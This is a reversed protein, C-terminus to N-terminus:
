IIIKQYFCKMIVVIYQQLPYVCLFPLLIWSHYRRVKEPKVCLVISIKWTLFHFIKLHYHAILLIMGISARNFRNAKGGQKETGNKELKFAARVVKDKQVKMKTRLLPFKRDLLTGSQTAKTIPIPRDGDWRKKRPHNDRLNSIAQPGRKSRKSINNKMFFFLLLLIFLYPDNGISSSSSYVLCPFNHKFSMKTSFLDTLKLVAM